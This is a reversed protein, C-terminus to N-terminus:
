VPLLAGANDRSVGVEAVAGAYGGAVDQYSQYVGIPSSPDTPVVAPSTGKTLTDWYYGYAYNVSVWNNESYAIATDFDNQTATEWDFTGVNYNNRLANWGQPVVLNGFGGPNFSSTFYLFFVLEDASTSTPTPRVRTNTGFPDPNAWISAGQWTYDTKYISSTLPTSPGAKGQNAMHFTLTQSGGGGGGGKSPLPGGAAGAAATSVTSLNQFYSEFVMQEKLYKQKAEMISLGINDKRKLFSQWTGPGEHPVIM